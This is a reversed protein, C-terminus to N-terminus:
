DNDLWIKFQQVRERSVIIMPDEFGSLNIKLRSNSWVIIDQCAHISIIFKRSVRFFREPDVLTEVFDLSYDIIFKRGENTILYTANDLSCFAQIEDVGISKIREGIRIVFRNKFKQRNTLQANALAVITDLSFAPSLKKVKNIAQTLRSTDIPKLLYDIGNTQFAAIAYQDYATTFIIPCKVEIKEFIEFSLGDELQIDSFILHPQDNTELFTIANKVSEVKKVVVMEPDADRLLQELLNAAREEDEIILVNM